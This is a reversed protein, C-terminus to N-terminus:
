RRRSQTGVCLSALITDSKSAVLGPDDKGEKDTLVNLAIGSCWQPGQASATSALLATSLAAIALRALMRIM